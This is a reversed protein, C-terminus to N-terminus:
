NSENTFLIIQEDISRADNVHYDGIRTRRLEKLYAGVELYQGIDRAISRIYTGKSCKIRFFVEVGEKREIDFAVQKSSFLCKNFKEM